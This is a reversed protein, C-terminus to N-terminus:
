RLVMKQGRVVVTVDCVDSVRYRVLAPEDTGLIADQSEM